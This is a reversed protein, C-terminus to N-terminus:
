EVPIEENKNETDLEAQMENLMQNFYEADLKIMVDTIYKHYGKFFYKFMEDFNKNNNFINQEVKKGTLNIIIKATTYDQKRLKTSIHVQEDYQINSADKMYGPIHTKNPNKPKVLYNAILFISKRKM